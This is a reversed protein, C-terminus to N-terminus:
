PLLNTNVGIRINNLRVARFAPDSPSDSDSGILVLQTPNDSSGLVVARTSATETSELLGRSVRTANDTTILFSLKFKFIKSLPDAQVLRRPIRMAVSVIGTAGAEIRRNLNNKVVFAYDLINETATLFSAARASTELNNSESQLYAQFDSALVDPIPATAGLQMGHLPLIRQGVSPDTYLVGDPNNVDPFARIDFAATQGNNDPKSIARLSINELPQSSLNNVRYTVTLFRFGGSVYDIDSFTLPLFQVQGSSDTVANRNSLDTDWALNVLGIATSSISTIAVSVTKTVAGSNNTASLVFTTNKVVNVQVRNGTVIGIDPAISLQSAGITQWELTVMGSELTDPTATFSSIVPPQVPCAVLILTLGLIALLSKM